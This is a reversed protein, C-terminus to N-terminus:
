PKRFKYVFQDTKGRISKDFVKLKHDDAPNRLVDSEGVFEFGAAEVQQKVIDPDIRHLTETDRLGSGSEAAHDVVVFVGGPKLAAFVQKNFSALDVPGMFKDPYDHYNQSTFVVDVPAPVSLAAASQKLIEINGYADAIAQLKDTSEDYETPWVAYVKGDAGVAKSFIRTFYGGGPILELVTDGPKVGAFAVVEGGHRRADNQADDSRAPDAIAAAVNAPLAAPAAAAADQAAAPASMAVGIALALMWKKM